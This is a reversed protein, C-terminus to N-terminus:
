LTSLAQAYNSLRLHSYALRYIAKRSLPDISLVKEATQICEAYNEQKLLILSTNLLCQSQIM